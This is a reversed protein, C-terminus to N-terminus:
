LCTWISIVALFILFDRLDLDEDELEDEEDEEDRASTSSIIRENIFRVASSCVVCFLRDTRPRRTSTFKALAVVVVAVFAIELLLVGPRRLRIQASGGEFM